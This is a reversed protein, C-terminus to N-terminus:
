KLKSTLESFTLPKAFLFGQGILYGNQCLIAQQHANEVGEAVVTASCQEALKQVMRIVPLASANEPDDLQKVFSKDLKLVKAGLQSFHALSSYGTGFDDISISIGLASLEKIIPAVLSYDQMAQSETIEVEIHEPKVTTSCILKKLSSMFAPNSLDASSINFSIPISLGAQHLSEMDAFVTKMVLYDIKSVLGSAEALPIFDAPMLQTKSDKQWRLLAEAGVIQGTQMDCKPQYYVKLQSPDAIADHLDKLLIYRSELAYLLSDDYYSVAEGRQRGKHLTAEALRLAQDSNNKSILDLDLVAVHTNTKHVLQNVSLTQENLQLLADKSPGYQRTFLLALCDEEIRAIAYHDPLQCYIRELLTQMLTTTFANGLLIETTYFDAVRVLVVITNKREANPTTHLERQLWNRNPINLSADYYALKSLKNLLALNKFGSAVGESFVMLLAIHSVDMPESSKVIVLYFRSDLKETSYYLVSWHGNFQHEKTLTAKDIAASVIGQESESLDSLMESLSNDHHRQFEGSSAVVGAHEVPLRGNSHVCVIGGKDPVDIIRGIEKLVTQTFGPVNQKSTMTRSADVIMQLGRKASALENLASWTKINATVVSRLKEETLDVKNWYENIDYDRMTDLRPAMSAQGTLLVIRLLDNGILNRITNVLLLGADDQEMVVDLLIVSLNPHRAIIDAAQSASSATLLKVPKDQVVMDALGMKLSLQYGPDDEVSLVQWYDTSIERSVDTQPTEDAFAFLSNDSM